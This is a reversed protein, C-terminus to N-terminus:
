SPRLGARDAMERLLSRPLRLESLQWGFESFTLRAGFYDDGTSEPGLRLAIRAIGSPRVRLILDGIDGTKLGPLDLTALAPRDAPVAMTGDRLLQTLNDATMLKAILEDALTAGVTQALLRERSSAPKARTAPDLYAALVQSVLSQRLAVRDTRALVGAGDGDQVARALNIVSVVASGYYALLLALVTLCIWLWRRM